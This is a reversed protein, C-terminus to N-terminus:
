EALYRVLQIWLKPFDSWRIFDEDWGGAFGGTYAVTKGEGYTGVVILPDKSKPDSMVVTGGEAVTVKNYGGVRTVARWDLDAVIPHNAQNLRPIQTGDDNTDWSASIDVPLIEDIPTGHWLGAWDDCGGQYACWGGVHVFGAGAAVREKIAEQIKAPMVVSGNNAAGMVLEGLVIADYSALAEPAFLESSEDLDPENAETIELKPDASLYEAWLSTQDPKGILLVHKQAAMTMNAMTLVLFLGIAVSLIRKNM